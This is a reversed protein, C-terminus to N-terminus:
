GQADLTGRIVELVQKPEWQGSCPDRAELGEVDLKVWGMGRAKEGGVHTVARVASLLWGLDEESAAGTVEGEFRLEGAATQAPIFETVFMREAQVTNTRRDIGVGVRIPLTHDRFWQGAEADVLRLDTFFVSSERWASGFLRCALCYGGEVDLGAHPCM